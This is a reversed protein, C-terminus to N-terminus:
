KSKSPAAWIYTVKTLKANPNDWYKKPHSFYGDKIKSKITHTSGEIEIDIEISKVQWGEMIRQYNKDEFNPDFDLLNIKIQAM